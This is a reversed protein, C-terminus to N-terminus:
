LDCHREVRVRLLRGSADVGISGGFGGLHERRGGAVDCLARAVRCCVARDVGPADPSGVCVADDCLGSVRGTGPGRLVDEHDNPQLARRDAGAPLLTPLDAIVTTRRPWHASTAEAAGALSDEIRRNKAIRLSTLMRSYGTPEGGPRHWSPSRSHHRMTADPSRRPDAQARGNHCNYACSRDSNRPDIGSSWPRYM